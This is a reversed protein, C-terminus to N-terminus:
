RGLCLDFFGKRIEKKHEKMCLIRIDSEDFLRVLDICLILRLALGIKASLSSVESVALFITKRPHIFFYEDIDELYYNRMVKQYTFEAGIMRLLYLILNQKPEPIEDDEYIKKM